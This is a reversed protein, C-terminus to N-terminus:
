PTGEPRPTPLPGVGNTDGFEFELAFGPLTLDASEVVAALASDLEALARRVVAARRGDIPPAAHVADRLERIQATTLLVAHYGAGRM